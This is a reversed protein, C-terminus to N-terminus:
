KSEKMCIIKTQFLWAVLTISTSYVLHMLVNLGQSSIIMDSFVFDYESLVNVFSGICEVVLVCIMINLLTEIYRKHM